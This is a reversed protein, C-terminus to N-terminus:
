SCTYLSLFTRLIASWEGLGFKPTGALDVLALSLQPLSYDNGKWSVIDPWRKLSSLCADYDSLSSLTSARRVFLGSAMM